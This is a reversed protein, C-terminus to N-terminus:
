LFNNHHEIILCLADLLTLFIKKNKIDIQVSEIPTETLASTPSHLFVVSLSIVSSMFLNESILLPCFVAEANVSIPHAKIQLFVRQAESVTSKSSFEM